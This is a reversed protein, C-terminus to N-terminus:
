AVGRVLHYAEPPLTQEVPGLGILVGGVIVYDGIGMWPDMDLTAYGGAVNTFALRVDLSDSSGTSGSQVVAEAQSGDAYTVTANAAWDVYGVATGDEDRVGVGNEAPELALNGAVMHLDYVLTDDASAWPWDQVVLDFKAGLATANFHYALTVTAEGLPGGTGERVTDTTTIRLTVGDPDETVSCASGKPAANQLSMVRADHGDADLEVVRESQFFYMADRAKDHVQVFGKMGQFWIRVQDNEFASGPLCFGDDGSPAWALPALLALLAAAALLPPVHAM